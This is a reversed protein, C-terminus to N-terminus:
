VCCLGPKIYWTILSIGWASSTVPVMNRPYFVEVDKDHVSVEGNVPSDSCAGRIWSVWHASMGCEEKRLPVPTNVPLPSAGPDGWHTDVLGTSLLFRPDQSLDWKRKEYINCAGQEM